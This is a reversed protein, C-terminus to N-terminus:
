SYTLTERDDWINDYNQNGDAFEVTADDTGANTIRKMRWVADGEASGPFAEGVYVITADTSKPKTRVANEIEESM